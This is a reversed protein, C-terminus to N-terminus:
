QQLLNYLKHNITSEIDCLKNWLIPLEELDRNSSETESKDISIQIPTQKIIDKKAHYIKIESNKPTKKEFHITLIDEIAKSTLESILSADITYHHTQKKKEFIIISQNYAKNKLSIKPLKIITSVVNDEIFSQRIDQEKGKRFLSGDPVAVICRGKKDTLSNYAHSLYAWTSKSKPPIGRCFRNYKDNKAESPDWSTEYAHLQSVIVDFKQIKDNHTLPNTFINTSIIKKYHLSKIYLRTQTITVSASESTTGYINSNNWDKAVKELLAGQGINMDYVYEDQKPKALQSILHAVQPPTLISEIKSYKRLIKEIFFEYTYLIEEKTWFSSFPISDIEGMITRIIFNIENKSEELINFLILNDSYISNIYTLRSKSHTNLITNTIDQRSTKSFLTFIYSFIHINKQEHNFNLNNATLEYISRIIGRLPLKKNKM